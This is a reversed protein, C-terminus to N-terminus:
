GLLKRRGYEALLAADAIGQAAKVKLPEALEPWLRTAALVAAAKTDRRDLGALMVKQWARPAPRIVRFGLADVIGLIRGFERGFRFTSALGQKPMAGVEEVAIQATEENPFLSLFEILAPGRVERKGGRTIPMRTYGLLNGRDDLAVAAGTLGPDIGFCTRLTM